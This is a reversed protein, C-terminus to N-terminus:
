NSKSLFLIIVYMKKLIIIVDIITMNTDSIDLCFEYKAEIKADIGKIDTNAIVQNYISVLSTEFIISSDFPM